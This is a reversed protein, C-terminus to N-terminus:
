FQNEIFYIYIEFFISELAFVPRDMFIMNTNIESAFQVSKSKIKPHIKSNLLILKISITLIDEEELGLSVGELIKSRITEFNSLKHDKIFINKVIQSIIKNKITNVNNTNTLVSYQYWLLTDKLNYNSNKYFKYIQKYSLKIDKFTLNNTKNLNNVINKIDILEHKAIRLPCCLGNFNKYKRNSCVIFTCYISNDSIINKLQKLLNYKELYEVHKLIIIKQYNSFMNKKSFHTLTDLIKKAKNQHLNIFDVICINEYFLTNELEENKKFMSPQLNFCQNLILNIITTKGCGDVGILYLNINLINDELLNILKKKLDKSFMFNKFSPIYQLAWCETIDM